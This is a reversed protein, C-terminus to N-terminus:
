GYYVSFLFAIDTHRKVRYSPSVLEGGHHQRYPSSTQGGQSLLISYFPHGTKVPIGALKAPHTWRLPCSRVLVTANSSSSLPASVVMTDAANKGDNYTLLSSPIKYTHELFLVPLLLRFDISASLGRGKLRFPFNSVSSAIRRPQSLEFRCNSREPSRKRSSAEVALSPLRGMRPSRYTRLYIKPPEKCSERRPFWIWRRATERQLASDRHTPLYTQTFAM